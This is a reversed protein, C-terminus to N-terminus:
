IISIKSRQCNSVNSPNLFFICVLVTERVKKEIRLNGSVYVKCCKGDYFILFFNTVFSVCYHSVRIFNTKAQEQLLLEM